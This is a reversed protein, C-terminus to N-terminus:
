LHISDYSHYIMSGSQIARCFARRAPLLHLCFTEHTALGQSPSFHRTSHVRVDPAIRAERFQHGLPGTERADERRDHQDDEVAEHQEHGERGLEDALAQELAAVEGEADEGP